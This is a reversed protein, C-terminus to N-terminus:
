SSPHCALIRLLSDKLSVTASLNLESHVKTISPVYRQRPASIQPKGLVVIEKDPSLTDRVTQALDLVSIPVDSGVNYISGPSAEFLIRTLWIVLDRQDLYSRIADGTGHITISNARLADNVFNGLAYHATLPLDPGSFSFCRAILVDFPCKSSYLHCLYEAARKAHGYSHSDDLPLTTPHEESLFPISEPQSGYVAGSSCFLFRRVGTVSALQLVNETGVYIQKYAEWPLLASGKTSDSAAHILHSFSLNSPLTSYDEIDGQLFHLNPTTAYHPHASLFSDPNRSLIYISLDNPLQQASFSRLFSKGFFGTGGVILLNNM